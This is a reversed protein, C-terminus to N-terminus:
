QNLQDLISQHLLRLRRNSGEISLVETDHFSYIILRGNGTVIRQVESENLTYIMGKDEITVYIEKKRTIHPQKWEPIYEKDQSM